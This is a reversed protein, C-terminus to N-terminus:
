ETGSNHSKWALRKHMQFHPIADFLTHCRRMVEYGNVRYFSVADERSDLIIELLGSEVARIELEELIARGVGQGRAAPDVAMFRIQGRNESSHHLRGVGIIRGEDNWAAIHISEKEFADKESGPPQDWPERLIKWRLAYYSAFESETTPPRIIM